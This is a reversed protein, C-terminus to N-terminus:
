PGAATAEETRADIFRHIDALRFLRKRGMAVVSIQRREALSYLYRKSICLLKAAKTADVLLPEVCDEERDRYISM